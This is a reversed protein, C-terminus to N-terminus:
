KLYTFVMVDHEVNQDILLVGCVNKIFELAVDGKHINGVFQQLGPSTRYDNESKNLEKMHLITDRVIGLLKETFYSSIQQAYFLVM